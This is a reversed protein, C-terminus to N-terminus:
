SLVVCSQCQCQCQRPRRADLEVGPRVKVQKKGSDSCQGSQVMM